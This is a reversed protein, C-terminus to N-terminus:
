AVEEKITKKTSAKLPPLLNLRAFEGFHQTAKENYIQAAEIETSYLGYSYHKQNDVVQVRWKGTAAHFSVGRYQSTKKKKYHRVQNVTQQSGTAYRLNLRRNNLGNLDRHDVTKGSVKPLILDHLKVRHGEISAAVYVTNNRGGEYVAWRYNRVLPYDATDVFCSLSSQRKRQELIIETIGDPRHVCQNPGKRGNHGPLYHRPEGTKVGSLKDPRDAVTTKQGCGCWCFGYPVNDPRKSDFRTSRHWNKGLEKAIEEALQRLSQPTTEVSPSTGSTKYSDM